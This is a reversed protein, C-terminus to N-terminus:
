KKITYVVRFGLAPLVFDTKDTSRIGVCSDEAGIAYQGGRFVRYEGDKAGTPNTDIAIDGYIDYCWEAVNGSMDYIKLHNPVKLGVKNTQNNSNASIWAVKGTEEINSVDAIAGSASNLNTLYVDGYKQANVNNNGQYRSAFEWEAETPLRFGTKTIDFYLNDCSTGDKANKLVTSDTKNKVYVCEATSKTKMETYANCWVVADRWSVLVVPEDEAHLKEDYSNSWGKQGVNAFSYDNKVAWDHVEKWLKYTVEYQSIAFENLKIKRNEIFVGKWYADNGVVTAGPDIGTIECKPVRVFGDKIKFSEPAPNHNGNNCSFVFGLMCLYALMRRMLFEKFLFM